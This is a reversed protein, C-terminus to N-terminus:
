TKISFIYRTGSGRVKKFLYVNYICFLRHWQQRRRIKKGGAFFLKILKGECVLDEREVSSTGSGTGAYVQQPEMHKINLM